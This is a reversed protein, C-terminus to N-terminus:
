VFPHEPRIEIRYDPAYKSLKEAVQEAAEEDTYSSAAPICLDFVIKATEDAFLQFDHVSFSPDIEAAAKQALLRLDDTRADGVSVPDPHITVLCGFRNQMDQELRDIIRHAELLTTDQPLEAHFSVIQRAPGYDHVMLDHVALIDPYNGIFETMQLLVEASPPTGLLQGITKGASQVASFLVFGAVLLGTWGDVSVSTFRSILASVLVVSTAAVDSLSDAATARLVSSQILAGVKRYFFYLWLKVLIALFLLVFAANSLTLPVPNRIKEIAGGLLELGVFGIVFSVLLASIYELRGHGHPHEEDAHRAAMRFGLLAVLNTGSDSLNNFSDAVIAVSGSVIGVALKVAFLLFNVAIGTVNALMGCRTRVPAQLLASRDKVFLSLLFNTM